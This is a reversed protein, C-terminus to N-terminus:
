VTVTIKAKREKGNGHCRLTLILIAHSLFSTRPLCTPIVSQFSVINQLSPFIFKM